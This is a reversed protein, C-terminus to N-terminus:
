LKTKLGLAVSAMPLESSYTHIGLKYNILESLGYILSGGGTLMIGGEYIDAALEPPTIELISYITDVIRNSIEKFIQITQGSTITITKPLGTVLDRGTVEIDIEESRKWVSGVQKKILEASTDGIVVNYERRIYSILSADFDNGAIKLSVSEVIGGLSIVAVDTTGGGIDVVLRGYPEDVDVESGIAGAIPEELLQVKKAGADFAADKFARREVETVSSPIGITINVKNGFKGKILTIYYKIIAKTMSYNSIVGQSLPKIVSINGPERGLMESAEKGVAVIKNTENNMAIVTPENIIIGKNKIVGLINSTGLDIGIKTEFM